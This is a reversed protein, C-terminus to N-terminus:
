KKAFPKSLIQVILSTIRIYAYKFVNITAISKGKVKTKGSKIAKLISKVDPKANVLTYARGLEPLIHTDSGATKPKNIKQALNNAYYCRSNIAEVADFPLNIADIRVCKWHYIMGFPHAAIAIGGLKHIRKITEEASLGKPINKEIGLAIIDGQKSTIEIGPIILFKEKKALKKAEKLAAVTNHDTIAFGDLGLQKARKILDEIEEFADSSYKTHVHLDLKLM